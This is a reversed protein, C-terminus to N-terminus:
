IMIKDVEIGYYPGTKYEYILTNDELIEYTHGGDLTFSADGANLVIEAILTNDLDYFFCKVSGQIVIWSEQPIYNTHNINRRIHRHPRFKKGSDLKMISCQLYEKSDILDCREKKIDSKRNIIHLLTGDVKSIIKEM